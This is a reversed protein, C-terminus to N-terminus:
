IWSHPNGRTALYYNELVRTVFEQTERIAPIRFGAAVVRQHGANYAALALPLSGNFYNLLFRFYRCGGLINERPSFPDQVGLFAATGPMLQMLGMAGKPSLAQPAFNSEVKIIARILPPPLAYWQAAEVIIPELAPNARGDWTPPRGPLLNTIVLKGQRDRHVIVTPTAVGGPPVPAPAALPAPAPGPPPRIAGPAAETAPGAPTAGPVAPKAPLPAMALQGGLVPPSLNAIHWVGKKDRYRRISGEMLPTTGMTEITSSARSAKGGPGRAWPLLWPPGRPGWRGPFPEGLEKPAREQALQRRVTVLSPRGSAVKEVLGMRAKALSPRQATTAAVMVDPAQGVPANTIHIVGHHDQYRSVAPSYAVTLAPPAALPPEEFATRKLPRPLEAQVEAVQVGGDEQAANNTIHIVGAHDRFRNVIGAVPRPAATEVTARAEQLAPMATTSPAPVLGPQVPIERPGAMQPVPKSEQNLNSEIPQPFPPTLPGAQEPPQEPAPRTEPVASQAPPQGQAPQTAPTEEPAPKRALPPAAPPLQEPSPLPSAANDPTASASGGANGIHITGKQDTFREINAASAPCALLVLGLALIALMLWGRLGRSLPEALGSTM